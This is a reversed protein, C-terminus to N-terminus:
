VPHMDQRNLYSRWFGFLRQAFSPPSAEDGEGRFRAFITLGNVRGRSPLDGAAPLAMAVALLGCWLHAALGSPRARGGDAAWRDGPQGEPFFLGGGSELPRLCGRTMNRRDTIAKTERPEM